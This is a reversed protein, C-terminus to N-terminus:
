GVLAYVMNKVRYTVPFVGPPGREFAAEFTRTALVTDHIYLLSRAGSIIDYPCRIKKQDDAHM